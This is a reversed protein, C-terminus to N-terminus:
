FRQLNQKKPNKELFENLSINFNSKKLSILKITSWIKSNRLLYSFVLQQKSFTTDTNIYTFM